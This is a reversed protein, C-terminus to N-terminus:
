KIRVINAVLICHRIKKEQFKGLKRHSLKNIAEELPEKTRRMQQSFCVVREGSFEARIFPIPGYKQGNIQWSGATPNRKIAVNQKLGHESGSALFSQSKWV